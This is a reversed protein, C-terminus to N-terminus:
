LSALNSSSEIGVWWTDTYDKLGLLQTAVGKNVVLPCCQAVWLGLGLRLLQVRLRETVGVISLVGTTTNEFLLAKPM